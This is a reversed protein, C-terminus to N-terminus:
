CAPRNFSSTEIWSSLIAKGTLSNSPTTSRKGEYALAFPKDNPSITVRARSAKRDRLVFRPQDAVLDVGWLEIPIDIQDNTEPFVPVPKRPTTAPCAIAQRM